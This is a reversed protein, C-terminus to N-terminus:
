AAAKEEHNIHKWTKRKAIASINAETVNYERALTALPERRNVRREFIDRVDPETLKAKNNTEGARVAPLIQRGKDRADHSNVRPTGLFLHHPNVCGPNDCKHCVYLDGPDTGTALQYSLRHAYGHGEERTGLGISGYGATTKGGKWEWCEFPSRKDVKSWFRDVLPKQKRTM